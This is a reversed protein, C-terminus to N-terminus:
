GRQQKSQLWRGGIRSFGRLVSINKENWDWYSNFHWSSSDSESHPYLSTLSAYKDAHRYLCFVNKQRKQM